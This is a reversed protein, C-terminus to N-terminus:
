DLQYHPTSMMLHCLEGVEKNTFIAGKKSVAYEVFAGREKAGLPTQFFRQVLSDVLKEPDERLPRPAIKEYDPGDWNQQARQLQNSVRMQRRDMQEMQMDMGMGADDMTMMSDDGNNRAPKPTEQSGKTIFGAVNYRTLLTNTNIWAKGWDWGAVNPPTFLVQGLQQQASVTYAHPPSELELEKFMQVLFQIPSKIQNRVIKDSYFAQSRFIERLLPEVQFDAAKFSRALAAVGEEPPNEAAFYEWLKRPVYSAAAAQEFLVEIVDDGDFKGSRGFVTKDGGDWQRRNHFVTGNQRNLNYGTFARAAEKIDQETYNGEGLTFLEMVERAFNENPKGKKSTQTDLYLMMAPDKLIGHTLDKFSGTAHRRFLENQGMMLVPQRVKQISSAFHDHWFLVMKERLPAKTYLMRRLWWGQAEVGRQRYLRQQQQNFERRTRDAREPTMDQMSRRMERQAVARERMEAAATERKAWEPLVFADVPEAPSLLSDVARYRGLAHFSAIEAPSGGFGARRLLHAAEQITWEDPAAPLM